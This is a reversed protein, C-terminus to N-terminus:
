VVLGVGVVTRISEKREKGGEKVRRRRGMEGRARRKLDGFLRVFLGEKLDGTGGRALAPSEVNRRSQIPVHIATAEGAAVVPSPAAATSSSLRRRRM